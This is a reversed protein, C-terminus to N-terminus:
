VSFVGFFGSFHVGKKGSRRFLVNVIVVLVGLGGGVIGGYWVIMGFIHCENIGRIRGSIIVAKNFGFMGVSVERMKLNRRRARINMASKM